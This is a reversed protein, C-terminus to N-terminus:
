ATRRSKAVKATMERLDEPHARCHMNWCKRGARNTTGCLPIDCEVCYFTTWSEKNEHHLCWRCRRQPVSSTASTKQFKEMTHLGDRRPLEPSAPLNRSPNRRVPPSGGLSNLLMCRSMEDAFSQITVKKLRHNPAVHFKVLKWMDTITMGLLTCYIRFWCSQTDWKEEIALDNTSAARTTTTLM